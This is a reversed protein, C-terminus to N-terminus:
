TQNYIVSLQWSKFGSVDLQNMSKVYVEVDYTGDANTSWQATHYEPKPKESGVVGANDAFTVVPGIKVDNAEVKLKIAAYKEGKFVGGSGFDQAYANGSFTIIKPGGPASNVVVQGVEQWNGSPTEFNNGGTADAYNVPGSTGGGFAIVPIAVALAVGGAVLALKLNM